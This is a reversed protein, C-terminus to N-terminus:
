LHCKKYNSIFVRVTLGKSRQCMIGVILSIILVHYTCYELNFGEAFLSRFKAGWLKITKVDDSIDDKIKIDQHLM